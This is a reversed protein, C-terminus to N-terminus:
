SRLEIDTVSNGQGNAVYLHHGWTAEGDPGVFSYQDGDLLKVLAGTAPDIETVADAGADAVFLDQDMVAMATAGSLDYRSGSILRVLAGTEADIQAITGLGFRINGGESALNGVNLAFIYSGDAVFIPPKASAM